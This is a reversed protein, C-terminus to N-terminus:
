LIELRLGVSLFFNFREVFEFKITEIDKCGSTRVGNIKWIKIIKDLLIWLKFYQLDVVNYPAFIYLTKNAGDSRANKSNSFISFRDFISFVINKTNLKELKLLFPFSFFIEFLKRPSLSFWFKFCFKPFYIKIM